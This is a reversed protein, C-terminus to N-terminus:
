PINWPRSADLERLCSQIFVAHDTPNAGDVLAPGNLNSTALEEWAARCDEANQDTRPGPNTTKPPHKRLEEKFREVAAAHAAELSTTSTTSAPGASPTLEVAAWTLACLTLTVGLIIGVTRRRSAAARRQRRLEALLEPDQSTAHPVGEPKHM